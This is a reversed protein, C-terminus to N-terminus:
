KEHMHSMRKWLRIEERSSQIKKEYFEKIAVKTEEIAAEVADEETRYLDEIVMWELVEDSTWRIKAEYSPM